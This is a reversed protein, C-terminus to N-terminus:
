YRASEILGSVDCHNVSGLAGDRLLLTHIVNGQPQARPRFGHTRQDRVVSPRYSRPSRKGISHSRPATGKIRRVPTHLRLFARTLRRRRVGLGKGGSESETFGASMDWLGNGLAAAEINAVHRICGPRLVHM